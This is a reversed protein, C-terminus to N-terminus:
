SYFSNHGLVVLIFLVYDSGKLHECDVKYLNKIRMYWKRPKSTVKGKNRMVIRHLPDSTENKYLHFCLIQIGLDESELVLTKRGWWM